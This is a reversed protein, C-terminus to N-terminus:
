DEIITACWEDWYLIPHAAVPLAAAFALGCVTLVLSACYAGGIHLNLAAGHCWLPHCELYRGEGICPAGASISDFIGEVALATPSHANYTSQVGLGIAIGLPTSFAFIVGMVVYSWKTIGAQAGCISIEAPGTGPNRCAARAAAHRGARQMVRLGWRCGPLHPPHLMQARGLWPVKCCGLCSCDCCRFAHVGPTWWCGVSLLGAMVLQMGGAGALLISASAPLGVENFCAGLAVGEFFQHFPLAALLARVTGMDSTVGLGVGILVQPACRASDAPRQRM